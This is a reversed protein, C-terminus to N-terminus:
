RIATPGFRDGRRTREQRRRRPRQCRRGAREPALPCGALLIIPVLSGPRLLKGPYFCAHGPPERLSLAEGPPPLPHASDFPLLRQSTELYASEVLAFPAEGM